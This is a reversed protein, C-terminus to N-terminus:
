PICNGGPPIVTCTSETNPDTCCKEGCKPTPYCLPCNVSAAKSHKCDTVEYKLTAPNYTYVKKEGTLCTKTLVAAQGSTTTYVTHPTGAMEIM